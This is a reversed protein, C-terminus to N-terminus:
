PSVAKVMSPEMQCPVIDGIVGDQEIFGNIKNGTVATVARGLTDTTVALKGNVTTCTAGLEIFYVGVGIGLGIPDGATDVSNRIIGDAAEGAVTCPGATQPQTTTRKGFRNKTTPGNAVVSIVRGPNEVSM